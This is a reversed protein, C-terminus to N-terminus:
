RRVARFFAGTKFSVPTRSPTCANRFSYKKWSGASTFRGWVSPFCPIRSTYKQLYDHEAFALSAIKVTGEPIHYTEDTRGPPYLVLTKGDNSYLVGDRAGYLKHPQSFTVSKLTDWTRLVSPKLAASPSTITLSECLGRFHRSELIEKPPAVPSILRKPAFEEFCQPHFRRVHPPLELTSVKSKLRFFLNGVLVVPGQRKWWVSDRFTDKGKCLIASDTFVIEECTTHWFAREGLAHIRSPLTVKPRLGASMCYFLETGNASCIMTGQASFNKNDPHVRVSELNPLLDNRLELLMYSAPIELYRVMQAGQIEGAEWGDISRGEFTEPLILTDTRAELVGCVVLRIHYWDRKTAIHFLNGAYEYEKETGYKEPM